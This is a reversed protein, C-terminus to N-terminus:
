QLKMQGELEKRYLAINAQDKKTKIKDCAICLTQINNMDWESGGIAIPKIHDGILQGPDTRESEEWDWGKGDDSKIPTKYTPQKGCKVCTFKDRKFVKLRLDPWGFTVYMRLYKSTCKTSCCRWDTRRTWKDKPLGCGPCENREIRSKAPELVIVKYGERKHTETM